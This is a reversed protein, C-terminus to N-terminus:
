TIRLDTADVLRLDGDNNSWKRYIQVSYVNSSNSVVFIDSYFIYGRYGVAYDVQLYFRGNGLSVGLNDNGLYSVHLYGNSDVYEEWHDANFDLFEESEEGACIIKWTIPFATANEYNSIIQFPALSDCDVHIFCQDILSVGESQSKYRDQEAKTDYFRIPLFLGTELPSNM